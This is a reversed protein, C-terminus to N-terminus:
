RVDLRAVPCPTKVQLIVERPLGVFEPALDPILIYLRTFGYHRVRELGNIKKM